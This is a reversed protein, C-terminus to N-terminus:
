LLIHNKKAPLFLLHPKDITKTIIINKPIVLETYGWVFAGVDVFWVPFVVDSGELIEQCIGNGDPQPLIYLDEVGLSHCTCLKVYTPNM